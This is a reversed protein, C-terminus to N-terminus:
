GDYQLVSRAIINGGKPAIYPFSNFFYGLAYSNFLTTQKIILKDENEFDAQNNEAPAQMRCLLSLPHAAEGM